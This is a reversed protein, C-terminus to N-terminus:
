NFYDVSLNVNGYLSGCQDNDEAYDERAGRFVFGYNPRSGDLWGRVADTVDIQFSTSNTIHVSPNSVNV